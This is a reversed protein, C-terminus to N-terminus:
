GSTTWPRGTRTESPLRAPHAPRDLGQPGLPAQGAARGGTEDFHVADAEDCCTVSTM